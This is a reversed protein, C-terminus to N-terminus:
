GSRAARWEAVSAEVDVPFVSALPGPQHSFHAERIFDNLATARRRVEGETPLNPLEERFREVRLRAELIPPLIALQEERLKKRLWSNDDWAEDVDPIPHGFGPLNDFEGADMAERLRQETFSEWSQGPPKRDSM